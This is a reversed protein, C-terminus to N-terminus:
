GIKEPTMYSILTATNQSVEEWHGVTPQIIAFGAPAVSGVEEGTLYEILYSVTLNHGVM